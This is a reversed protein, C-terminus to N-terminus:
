STEPKWAEPKDALRHLLKWPRLFWPPEWYAPDHDWHLYFSALENYSRESHTRVYEWAEGFGERGLNDEMGDAWLWWTRRSVRRQMRLFVQQNSLDFYRVYQELCEEFPPLPRRSDKMDFFAAVPLQAAIDRYERSLEDELSTRTQFRGLVLQVVVLVVGVATALSALDALSM